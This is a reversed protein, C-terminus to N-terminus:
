PKVDFIFLGGSMSPGESEAMNMGRTANGEVAGLLGALKSAKKRQTPAEASRLEQMASLTPQTLACLKPAQNTQDKPVALIVFNEAGVSSPRNKEEDWTDIWFRFNLPREAGATLLRTCGKRASSRPLAFVGGLADVYLGAVYYDQDSENTVDISVFDCNTVAAPLLSDIPTAEADAPPDEGGCQAKANDGSLRYRTAKLTVGDEDSGGDGLAAAVRLLKSARALSWIASKLDRGLAKPDESLALSPTEDYAGPTPVWPKDPRLIWVRGDKVRLLVDADPNGPQGMEIGITEAGQAFSQELSAALLGRDAEAAFDEPPPPSVVFRFNVAPETVVTSVTGRTIPTAGESWVLNGATSTIATAGTVEATGISKDPKGPAYLSIVAGADYGNLSGVPLTITGNEIVGTTSNPLRAGDSGPLPADLDGDFVPPPVKGGTSDANLEAVIEQALERFTGATKRSLARHLLFTFVGMRQEDGEGVMPMNYGAFSREIAETYSEVAYFGM